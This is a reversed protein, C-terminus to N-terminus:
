SIIRTKSKCWFDGDLRNISDGAAGEDMVEALIEEGLVEEETDGIPDATPDINLLLRVVRWNM